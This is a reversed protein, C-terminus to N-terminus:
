RPSQKKIAADKVTFKIDHLRFAYYINFYIISLLCYSKFIKCCLSYICFIGRIRDLKKLGYGYRCSWGGRNRNHNFKDCERRWVLRNREGLKWMERNLGENRATESGSYELRTGLEIGEEVRLVNEFEWGAGGEEDGCGGDCAKTETTTTAEADSAIARVEVWGETEWNARSETALKGIRNRVSIKESDDLMMEEEEEEEGDNVSEAFQSDVWDLVCRPSSEVVKNHLLFPHQLLQDCSWRRSPERRLCKEVFDRGLESLKSPIEPLEGSYGIRSLTDVGRDEWGPKGTIMEIVTCGLSWVDSEPGQYERRIVEPAMWMPSGRPLIGAPCDRGSFEVASGFDALKAVEGDGSVLVNRGKVDCHVVGREHVHRLASVLCWAYRRVLREDVDADADMDAVTGGPMYELHLNRFSSTSGEECTADDGLFSVVHPSSMRRLIRIENELAELQGPLGTKRDVSKVAFVRGDPKSVAINVIGFAGKGVCKGRVWSAM